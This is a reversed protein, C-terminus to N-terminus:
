NRAHGAHCLTADLLKAMRLSLRGYASVSEEEITWGHKEYFRVAEVNDKEVGLVGRAAGMALAAEEFSLLLRGAWGNGRIAPRLGFSALHLSTGDPDALLRDALRRRRIWLSRLVRPNVLVRAFLALGMELKASRSLRPASAMTGLAFGVVKGTEDILVRSCNNPANIMRRMSCRLFMPGLSTSFSAPFVVRYADVLSRVHEHTLAVIRLDPSNMSNEGQEAREVIESFARGLAARDYPRVAERGRAGMESRLAPDAALMRLTEALEVGHGPPVLIGCGSREVIERTTGACCGAIPLGSAMYSFTKVSIADRARESGDLFVLGIDAAHLLESLLTEPISSM